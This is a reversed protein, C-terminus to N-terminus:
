LSRPIEKVVISQIFDGEEFDTFGEFSIGCEIGKKAENIDKKVQKLTELSGEWIQNNNRLIRVKQNKFIAGNTVRCGAVSKFEKGKVNIRFIQLITAEGTVHKELIPPLLKSLQEKVEDLLHYIVKFFKMDVNDVRAQLQVKKDAKVNFGLVIAKAINAMHIDSETIDGVGSDVVNVRVEKNGLGHLADVVAESTGSVDAKVVVNLEKIERINTDSSPKEENINQKAIPYEKLLGQHFMWVEKKFSRFNARQTELEQKRQRRKENIVELDKLQQDRSRKLERNAVVIKALEEDTAQIVEDGAIPLEKWGTIKVPTGPLANKVIQSKEDTMMRVKCWTTGAVIVDGQKLTGRKVLVTAVYGKGKEVQSEIVAGEAEIDVEARLDSLEALTVIAEELQDLGQGTLGSVEVCQTEGGYEELEVGNALLAERVKQSNANYRDIKNIAVVMPVEADKAHKIAELTQPMVGDDAAVVLVVIDTVHTGRARMASFAAHGPTDLFTITRRSALSVSFAGIHQTIGGAEGAAVSSKRLTDLLTTKGHDVHGLVAVIPPRLPYKSMDAPKPKSFLDIAAESNVVPNLDYEMAILSAEEANLLHDHSVSEIGLNQLKQEFSAAFSFFRFQEGLHVGIMKALNSVSIADPIFIERQLKQEIQHTRIKQKPRDFRYDIDFYGEEKELLDREKKFFKPKRHESTGALKDKKSFFKQRTRFVSSDDEEEVNIEQFAKLETLASVFDVKKDSEIGVEKRLQDIQSLRPQVKEKEILGLSKERSKMTKHDPGELNKSGTWNKRFGDNFIEIRENNKGRSNKYEDSFRNTGSLNERYSKSNNLGGSKHKPRNRKVMIDKSSESLNFTNPKDWKTGFLHSDKGNNSRFSFLSDDENRGSPNIETQKILLSKPKEWKNPNLKDFKMYARAKQLQSSSIDADPDVILWDDAAPNPREKMLKTTNHFLKVKRRPIVSPM